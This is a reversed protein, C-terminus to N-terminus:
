KLAEEIKAISEEVTMDQYEKRIEEIREALEADANMVALGADVKAQQLDAWAKNYAAETIQSQEKLEDYEKELAELQKERERFSDLLKKRKWTRWAFLGGLATLGLLIMWSNKNTIKFEKLFYIFIVAFIVFFLLDDGWNRLFSVIKLSEM